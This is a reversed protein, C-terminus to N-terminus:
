DDAKPERGAITGNGGTRKLRIVHNGTPPSSGSVTEPEFGEKRITLSYKVGRQHSIYMFVFGGTDDTTRRVTRVLTVAEYVPGNVELTVEANKLPAGDEANVVGIVDFIYDHSRGQCGFPSVAFALVFVLLSRM